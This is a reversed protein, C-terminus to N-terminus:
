EGGQARPARAPEARRVAPTGPAARLRDRTEPRGAHTVGPAVMHPAPRGVGTPPAARLRTRVWPAAVRPPRRSM